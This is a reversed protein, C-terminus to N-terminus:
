DGYSDIMDGLKKSFVGSTGFHGVYQSDLLYYNDTNPNLCDTGKFLRGLKVEKWPEDSKRTQIM